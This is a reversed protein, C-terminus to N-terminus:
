AVVVEKWMRELESKILRLIMRRQTTQAVSLTTLYIVNDRGTHRGRTLVPNGKVCDKM